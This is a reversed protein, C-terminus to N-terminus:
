GNLVANYLNVIEKAILDDNFKQVFQYGATAKQERLEKNTLLQNIEKSLAEIDNLLVYSSGPGGAEPFVGGKTTIVPTKSFLAEIIPIGFGEYLSPYVAVTAKEYIAKLLSNDNINDLWILKGTAIREKIKQLLSRPPKGKAVLVIPLQLDKPLLAQAALLLSLNKRRGLTGVTLIFNQPLATKTDLELTNPEYFIKQCAQYLVKIKQAPINYYNM